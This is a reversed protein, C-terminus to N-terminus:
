RNRDRRRFWPFVSGVIVGLVFLILMWLWKPASFHWFLVHTRNSHRNQLVFILVLVGIVIGVILKPSLPSKRAQPPQRDGQNAM